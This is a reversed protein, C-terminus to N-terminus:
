RDQGIDAEKKGSFVDPIQVEGEPDREDSREHSVGDVDSPGIERVASAEAFGPQLREQDAAPRAPCGDVRDEDPNQEDGEGELRNGSGKEKEAKSSRQEREMQVGDPQKEGEREQVGQPMPKVPALRLKEANEPRLPPERLARRMKDIGQNFPNLPQLDFVCRRRARAFVGNRRETFGGSGGPGHCDRDREGDGGGHAHRDHRCARQDICM